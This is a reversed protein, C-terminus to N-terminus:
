SISIIKYEKKQKNIELTFVEGIRKGILASGLPSSDSILGKAPNTELSGLIQYKKKIGQCEIEVESGINAQKSDKNIEIIEAQALLNKLKEIKSNTRRLKYKAEQYGANESYDGTTSLEKVEAAEQPQIKKLFELNREIQKYKDLTIKAEIKIRPIKDSRRTPIQM